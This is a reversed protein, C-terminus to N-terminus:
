IQYDITDLMQDISIMQIEWIHMMNGDPLTGTQWSFDGNPISFCLQKPQDM